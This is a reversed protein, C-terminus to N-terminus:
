LSTAVATPHPSPALWPLTIRVAAWVWESGSDVYLNQTKKKSHCERNNDRRAFEM